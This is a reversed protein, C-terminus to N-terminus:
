PETRAGYAAALVVYLWIFPLIINSEKVPLESLWLSSNVPVSGSGVAQRKVVLLVLLVVLVVLVVLVLLVVVLVVLLVVVEVLLVVVLVVVVVDVVDVVVM